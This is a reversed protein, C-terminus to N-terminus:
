VWRLTFVNLEKESKLYIRNNHMNDATQFSWAHSRIKTMDEKFQIHKNLVLWTRLDIGEGLADMCWTFVSYYDYCTAPNYERPFEVCYKFHPFAKWQASVKKVKARPELAGTRPHIYSTM